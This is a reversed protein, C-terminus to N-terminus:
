MLEVFQPTLMPGTKRKQHLSQDCIIPHCFREVIPKRSSAVRTYWLRRLFKHVNRNYERAATTPCLYENHRYSRVITHYRM